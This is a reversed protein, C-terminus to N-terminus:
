GVWYEHPSPNSDALWMYFRHRITPTLLGAKQSASLGESEPLDLSDISKGPVMSSVSIQGSMRLFRYIVPFLTLFDLPFGHFSLDCDRHTVLSYAM